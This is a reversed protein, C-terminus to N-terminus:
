IRHPDPARRRDARVFLLYNALAACAYFCATAIFLPTFGYQRQVAASVTPGVIYGASFAGNILGIVIPRAATPSREMAYADYLPAAMNMLAGRALAILTAAWLGPALGLLLLCPIALSQTLVVSGMKGLRRSLLPAALTAAGTAIGVLAFVVGLAADSAGYRQRFYLNLFPILLAAGFSILLPSVLFRWAGLATRLLARRDVVSAPVPGATGPPTRRGSGLLPLAALATLAAAVAFTARYAAASQAPLGLGAAALGPLLGGVLSGLGAVGISLGASLAFLADRERPGSHEMMFPAASVQWLVTAPGSLAACILLPLPAPWLAVGLLAGGSLLAGAVLARRPGGRSVAWWIPLSSLAAVLVPLSNLLGLLPVEGVLPLRTGRQDYGLEVLLLNYFLGSVALGFTLLVSHILYRWAPGTLRPM